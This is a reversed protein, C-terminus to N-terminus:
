FALSSFEDQTHITKWHVGSDLTQQVEYRRVDVATGAITWSLDVQTYSPQDASATSALTLTVAGTTAETTVNVNNSYELTGSADIGGQTVTFAIRYTWDGTGPSDTSTYSAALPVDAAHSAVTTWANDGGRGFLSRQLAWNTIPPMNLALSSWVLTVTGGSVTASLNIVNEM